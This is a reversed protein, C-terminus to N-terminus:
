CVNARVDFPACRSSHPRAEGKVDPLRKKENKVIREQKKTLYLQKKHM